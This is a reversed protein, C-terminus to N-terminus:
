NRSLAPKLVTECWEAFTTQRSADATREIGEDLGADKARMMDVLGQVHADGIGFGRLRAGFSELSTREYRVPTGLVESMIRALDNQSLDQPGVLPVSGVGSWSHDLLLDTATAAIDRTAVIPATRDPDQTDSFM